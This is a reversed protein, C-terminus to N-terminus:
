DKSFILLTLSGSTDECAKCLIYGGLEIGMCCPYTGCKECAEYIRCRFSFSFWGVHCLGQVGIEVRFLAVFIVLSQLVPWSTWFGMRYLHASDPHGCDIGVVYVVWWVVLIFAVSRVHNVFRGVCGVRVVDGGFGIWIYINFVVLKCFPDVDNLCLDQSFTFLTLSVVLIGMILPSSM